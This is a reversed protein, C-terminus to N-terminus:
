NALYFVNLQSRNDDFITALEVSEHKCFFVTVETVLEAACSFVKETIVM